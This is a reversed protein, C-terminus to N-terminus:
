FLFTIKFLHSGVSRCVSANMTQPTPLSPAPQKSSPPLPPLPLLPPPPKPPTTKIPLSPSSSSPRPSLPPKSLHNPLPLPHFRGVCGGVCHHDPPPPSLSPSHPLKSPTTEPLLKKKQLSLSPVSRCVWRRLLPRPTPPPTLSSPPSLPSLSLPQKTTQHPSSPPLQTKKQPLSSPLPPAHPLPSSLLLPLSLLPDIAQSIRGPTPSNLDEYTHSRPAQKELIMIPRKSNVEVQGDKGLSQEFM